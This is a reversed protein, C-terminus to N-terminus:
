RIHNLINKILLDLTMRHLNNGNVMIDLNYCLMLDPQPPNPIIMNVFLPSILIIEGHLLHLNMVVCQLELLHQKLLKGNIYIPGNLIIILPNPASLFAPMYQIQILHFILM